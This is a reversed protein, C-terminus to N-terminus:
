WIYSFLIFVGSVASRRPTVQIGAAKDGAHHFAACGNVSAALTTNVNRCGPISVRQGSPSPGPCGAPGTRLMVAGTGSPFDGPSVYGVCSLHSFSCLYQASSLAVMMLEIPVGFLSSLVAAPPFLAPAGYASGGQGTGTPFRGEQNNM